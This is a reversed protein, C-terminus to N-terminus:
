PGSALTLTALVDPSTVVPLTTFLRLHRPAEPSTTERLAAVFVSIM